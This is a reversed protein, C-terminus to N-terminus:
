GESKGARRREWRKLAYERQWHPDLMDPNGRMMPVKAADARATLIWRPKPATRHQVRVLVGVTGPNRLIYLRAARYSCGWKRAAHRVPWYMRLLERRQGPLQYPKCPDCPIYQDYCIKKPINRLSKGGWFLLTGIASRRQMSSAVPLLSCVNFFLANPRM